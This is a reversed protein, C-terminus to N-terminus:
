VSAPTLPAAARSFLIEESVIALDQDIWVLAASQV